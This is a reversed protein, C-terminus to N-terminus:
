RRQPKSNLPVQNVMVEQKIGFRFNCRGKTRIVVVDKQIEVFDLAAGIRSQMKLYEEIISAIDHGTAKVLTNNDKINTFNVYVYGKITSVVIFEGTFKKENVVLQAEAIHEAKVKILSEM